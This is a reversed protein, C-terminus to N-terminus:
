AAEGLVTERHLEPGVDADLRRILESCFGIAHELARDEVRAPVDGPRHHEPAYDLTNRCCITIAPFGALRAVYADTPVRLVLGRSAFARGDEDDETIQECLQVLRDHCRLAILAGERRTFRVTGAGVEDLNLLVTRRRDLQRRCSRVFARMGGSLAEQAGTFLVWVDFHELRGGHRDAIALAVAVGSANDNAGPVVSSVAVDVLLALAIILGATCVLQVTTVVPGSVGVLRLVCCVLLVIEGWFVPEFPGIPRRVAQSLAARREQAWRSFLLGTRGADYHAVLVLTGPKSGHEPSVVNQSARRGAVRRPLPLLSTADAFLALTAVLVLAGLAPKSASVASGAVALALFLSYSIPWNPWTDVHEVTADRGLERLRGALHRAARREGETGPWRRGIAVLDEIERRVDV